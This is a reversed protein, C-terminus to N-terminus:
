LISKLTDILLKNEECFQEQEEESLVSLYIKGILLFMIVLLRTADGVTKFIKDEIMALPLVFVIGVLAILLIVILRALLELKYFFKTM